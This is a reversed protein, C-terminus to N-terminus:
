DAYRAELARLVDLAAPPNYGARTSFPDFRVGVVRHRSYRPRESWRVEGTLVLPEPREPLHLTITLRQGRAFRSTTEFALGGKSLNVVESRAGFFRHLVGLLGQREVAAMAGIVEFSKCSVRAFSGPHKFRRDKRQEAASPLHGPQGTVRSSLVESSRQEASM